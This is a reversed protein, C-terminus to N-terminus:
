GSKEFYPLMGNDARWKGHGVVIFVCILVVLTIPPYICGTIGSILIGCASGYRPDFRDDIIIMIVGTSLAILLASSITLHIDLPATLGLFIISFFSLYSVRWPWCFEDM